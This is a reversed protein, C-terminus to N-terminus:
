ARSRVGLTRVDCPCGGLRWESDSASIQELLALIEASHQMRSKRFGQLHELLAGKGRDFEDEGVQEVTRMLDGLSRM